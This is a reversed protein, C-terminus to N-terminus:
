NYLYMYVYSTYLCTRGIMILRKPLRNRSWHQHFYRGVAIINRTRNFIVVVITEEYFIILGRHVAFGPLFIKATQKVIFSFSFMRNM